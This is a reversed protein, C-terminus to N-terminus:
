PGSAGELEAGLEAGSVVQDEGVGYEDANSEERNKANKRYKKDGVRAV